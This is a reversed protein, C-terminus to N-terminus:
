SHSIAKAVSSNIPVGKISLPRVRRTVERSDRFVRANIRSKIKWHNRLTEKLAALHVVGRERPDDSKTHPHSLHVIRRVAAILKARSQSM